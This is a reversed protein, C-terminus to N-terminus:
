ARFADGTRDNKSVNMLLLAGSATVIGAITSISLIGGYVDQMNSQVKDWMTVPAAFAQFSFVPCLCIRWVCGARIRTAAIKVKESVRDFPNLAAHDM